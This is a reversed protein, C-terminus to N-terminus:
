LMRYEISTEFDTASIRCLLSLGYKEPQDKFDAESYIFAFSDGFHKFATTRAIEYPTTKMEERDNGTAHIEVFKNKFAYQSGFTIYYKQM